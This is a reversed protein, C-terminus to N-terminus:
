CSGSYYQGHGQNNAKGQVPGFLVLPMHPLGLLTAPKIFLRSRAKKKFYLLSTKVDRRPPVTVEGTEYAPPTPAAGVPAVSRSSPRLFSFINKEAENIYYSSGPYNIQNSSRM